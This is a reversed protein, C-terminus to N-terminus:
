CGHGVKQAHCCVKSRLGVAAVGHRRSCCACATVLDDVQCEEFQVRRRLGDVEGTGELRLHRGARDDRADFGHVRAAEGPPGDAHEGRQQCRQQHQETRQHQWDLLGCLARHEHCPPHQEAHESPDNALASIPLM